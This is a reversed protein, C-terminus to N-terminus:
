SRYIAAVRAACGELGYREEARVRGLCGMAERRIAGQLLSAIEGAMEEDSDFLVGSHRHEVMAPLGGARRAVVARGCAMAEALGMSFGARRAPFVALSAQRWLSPMDDTWDRLSVLDPRPTAAAAAELTPREPGEGVILLRAAPVRAWVLPMARVLAVLARDEFWSGAALVLPRDPDPEAPPPAFAELDIGPTVAEVRTVLADSLAAKVAASACLGARARDLRDVLAPHTTKPLDYATYVWPRKSRFAEACAWAARYGFAHVLDFRDARRLLERSVSKDYRPGTADPIWDDGDILEAAVGHNALSRALSAAHSSIGGRRRRRIMLVRM